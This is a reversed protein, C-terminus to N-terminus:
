ESPQEAVPESPQEAVPESPQEAVPESPQEAVPESPQEAVPESPQEAVPESPQEAVPEAKKAAVQPKEAPKPSNPAAILAVVGLACLILAISALRRSGPDRIVGYVAVLLSAAFTFLGALTLFEAM